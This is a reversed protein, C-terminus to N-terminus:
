EDEKFYASLNGWEPSLYGGLVGTKCSFLVSVTPGGGVHPSGSDTIVGITVAGELFACGYTADIDTFMVFDGTRLESLELDRRDDPDTTMVSLVDGGLGGATREPLIKAVPILLHGEEERVPLRLLLDPDMHCTIEPYDSLALGCSAGQLLFREEGTFDQIDKQPFAANLVGGAFPSAAGIVYGTVDKGMVKVRTGCCAYNALAGDAGNASKLAAGPAVHWGLISECKDGVHFNTCIGGPSAMCVGKGDQDVYLSLYPPEQPPLVEALLPIRPIRDRNTKLM